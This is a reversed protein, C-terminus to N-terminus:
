ECEEVAAEADGAAEGDAEDSAVCEEDDAVCEDERAWSVEARADVM